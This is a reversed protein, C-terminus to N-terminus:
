SLPLFDNKRINLKQIFWNFPKHKETFDNIFKLNFM